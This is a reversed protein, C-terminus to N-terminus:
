RGCPIRYLRTAPIDIRSSEDAERYCSAVPTPLSSPDERRPSSVGVVWLARDTDVAIDANEGSWPVTRLPDVSTVIRLALPARPGRVSDAEIEQVFDDDGASLAFGLAVGGQGYRQQVILLDGVRADAQIHSVAAPFDDRPSPPTTLVSVTHWGTAGVLGIALAGALLRAVLLDPAHRRRRVPDRRARTVAGVAAGALLAVGLSIWLLYRWSVAPQVIVSVLVLIVVPTAVLAVALAAPRRPSAVVVTLLGMLVMVAIMTVPAAFGRGTMGAAKAVAWSVTDADIPAVWEIQGGQSRASGLLLLTAAAWPASAATWTLLARRSRTLLMTAVIATAAFPQMLVAFVGTVAYGTWAGIRASPGLDECLARDLLLTALSVACLALTYPRANAAQSLAAGNVALMTGATVAAARGWWRLALAGLAAVAGGFALASWIRMGTDLGTLGSFLHVLAYYPAIVADVHSTAAMMDGIDLAAYQRTAYEDRWLPQMASLWAALALALAVPGAVSLASTWRAAHPLPRQGSWGRQEAEM